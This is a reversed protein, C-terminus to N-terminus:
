VPIQQVWISSRKMSKDSSNVTPQFANLEMHVVIELVPETLWPLQKLLIWHLQLNQPPHPSRKQEPSIWELPSTFPPRTTFPTHRCRMIAQDPNYLDYGLPRLWGVVGGVGIGQSLTAFERIPESCKESKFIELRNHLINSFSEKSQSLARPAKDPINQGRMGKCVYTAIVM